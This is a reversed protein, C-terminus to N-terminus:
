TSVESSYASDGFENRAKVRYKYSSSGPQDIYETVDQGTVILEAYECSQNKGKVKLCREIVFGTENNSQDVWSLTVTKQKIKGKGSHTVTATLNVPPAPPPDVVDLACISNLPYDYLFYLGCDSAFMDAGSHGVGPIVEKRHNLLNESGFFGNVHNFYAEGRQLRHDGQLMASCGTALSSSNPDNDLEGLMYITNRGQYNLMMQLSGVSTAYSNLNQLGYKYDDYEPCSNSNPVEFVETSGPLPREQSSYM